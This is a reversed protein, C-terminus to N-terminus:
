VESIKNPNNNAWTQAVVAADAFQVAGSDILIQNVQIPNMADLKKANMVLEFWDGSMIM